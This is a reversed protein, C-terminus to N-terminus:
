YCCIPLPPLATWVLLFRVRYYYGFAFCRIWSWLHLVSCSPFSGALIGHTCCSWYMNLNSLSSSSTASYTDVLSAPALIVHNLKFRHHNLAASSYSTPPCWAAMFKELGLCWRLSAMSHSSSFIWQYQCSRSYSLLQELISLYGCPCTISALSRSPLSRLCM